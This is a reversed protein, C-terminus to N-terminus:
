ATIFPRLPHRLLVIEGTSLAGGTRGCANSGSTKRRNIGDSIDTTDDGNRSPESSPGAPRRSSRAPSARPRSSPRRLPHRVVPQRDRYPCRLEGQRRVPWVSAGSSRPIAPSRGCMECGSPKTLLPDNISDLASIRETTADDACFLCLSLLGISRFGITQSPPAVVPSTVLSRKGLASIRQGKSCRLDLATFFTLSVPTFYLPLARRAIERIAAITLENITTIAAM